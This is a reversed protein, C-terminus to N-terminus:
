YVQVGIISEVKMFEKQKLLRKGFQHINQFELVFKVTGMKGSALSRHRKKAQIYIKKAM